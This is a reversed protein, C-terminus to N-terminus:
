QFGIPRADEKTQTASPATHDEDDNLPPITSTLLEAATMKTQRIQDIADRYEPHGFDARQPFVRDRLLVGNWRDHEGYELRIVDPSGPDLEDNIATKFEPEHEEALQLDTQITQNVIQEQQDSPLSVFDVDARESLEEATYQSRLRSVFTYPCGITFRPEDPVARFMVYHGDAFVDVGHRANNEDSPYTNEDIDDGNAHAASVLTGIADYLNAM